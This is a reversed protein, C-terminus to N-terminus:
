DIKLHFILSLLVLKEMLIPHCALAWTIYSEVVVEEDVVIAIVLWRQRILTTLVLNRWAAIDSDSLHIDVHLLQILLFLVLVAPLGGQIIHILFILRYIFFFAGDGIVLTLILMLLGLQYYLLFLWCQLTAPLVERTLVKKLQKFVLFVVAADFIQFMIELRQCPLVVGFDFEFWENTLREEQKWYISYIVVKRWRLQKLAFQFLNIYLRQQVRDFHRLPLRFPEIFANKSHQTQIFRKILHLIRTQFKNLDTVLSKHLQSLTTTLVLDRIFKFVKHSLHLLGVRGQRVWLRHM